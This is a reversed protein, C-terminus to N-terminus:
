QRAAISVHSTEEYDHPYDHNCDTPYPILYKKTHDDKSEKPYENECHKGNILSKDIESWKRKITLANELESVGHTPASNSFARM